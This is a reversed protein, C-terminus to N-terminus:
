FSLLLTCLKLNLDNGIQALKLNETATKDNELLREHKRGNEEKNQRESALCSAPSQLHHMSQTRHCSHYPATSFLANKKDGNAILMERKFRSWIDVNTGFIM